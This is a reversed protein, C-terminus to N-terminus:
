LSGLAEFALGDLIDTESVLTRDFGCQAMTETLVVAGATIVDERGPPMVPIAAREPTAMSALRSLVRRADDLTLWSRHTAEPDWRKLDLATGQMTTATGAVAILTRADRTPVLLSAESLRARVESRIADLERRTPPDTRVFRETMRVSGIPLSAAAVAADAGFALETSGGGVDVVLYPSPLDLGRTAGDFSLRAEHEGDIVRLREGTLREVSRELEIRNTADRVASTASVSVREAHLARARAAYRELVALTRALAAPDIRGTADVGAGIRTIVMDRAFEELSGGPSEAAVLLRVSNTGLDVVGVRRSPSKPHVPDVRGAVWAGVPDKGGALHNAYHAHLCKIGRRTGAVGGFSEAGVADRARERAYEDHARALAAALAPDGDIRENLAAIAGTSELRSVARVADPCTLWFLTPFPRGEADFPRNRIVLPHGGVCRVVVSFATTPQRGLQSAVLALDSGRTEGM